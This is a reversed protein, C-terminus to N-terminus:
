EAVLTGVCTDLHFDGFLDYTGAKLPGLRITVSQGEPIIKEIRLAKSEIEEAGPGANTVELEFRKGHAVTLKDPVLKHDKIQLKVPADDAHAASAWISAVVM